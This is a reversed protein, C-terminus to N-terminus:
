SGPPKPELYTWVYLAGNVQPAHPMAGFHYQSAEACLSKRSESSGGDDVVNCTELSGDGKVTISLVRHALLQSRVIQDPADGDPYFRVETVLKAPEYGALRVFDAGMQAPLPSPLQCDTDAAGSAEFRCSAVSGDARFAIVTTQFWGRRSLVPSSLRWDVRTHAVRPSSDAQAPEFRAREVYIRCSTADLSPSGSSKEVKCQSVRGEPGVTLRIAAAGQEGKQLAEAPYDDPSLVEQLNLLRPGDPTAAPETAIGASALGVAALGAFVGRRGLPMREGVDFLSGICESGLREMQLPENRRREVVAGPAAEGPLSPAATAPFRM